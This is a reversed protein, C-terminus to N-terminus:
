LLRDDVLRGASLRPLSVCVRLEDMEREVVGDPWDSVTRDVWRRLGDKDFFAGARWSSESFSVEVTLFPLVSAARGVRVGLGFTEVNLERNGNKPLFFDAGVGSAPGALLGSFCGRFPGAAPVPCSPYPRSPAIRLRLLPTNLGARPDVDDCSAPLLGWNASGNKSSRMFGTTIEPPSTISFRFVDSVSTWRAPLEVLKAGPCERWCLLSEFVLEVVM